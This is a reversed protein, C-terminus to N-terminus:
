SQFQKNNTNMNFKIICGNWPQNFNFSPCTGYISVGYLNGDSAKMLESKINNLFGLNNYFTVTETSMDYKYIKNNTAGYLQGTLPELVGINPNTEAGNSNILDTEFYEVVRYKNLILDYEYLVGYSSNSGAPGNIGGFLTTGYLKGNSALFLKGKPIKGDSGNFEYMIVPSEGNLDYKTINGFYANPQESIYEDGSNVGWLEKQSFCSVSFIWM